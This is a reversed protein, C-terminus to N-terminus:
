RHPAKLPVQWLGQLLGWDYRRQKWGTVMNAEYKTNSQILKASPGSLKSFSMTSHIGPRFHCFVCFNLTTRLHRELPDGEQLHEFVDIGHSMFLPFEKEDRAVAHLGSRDGALLKAKSLKFEFFDQSTREPHSDLNVGEPITTSIARHVRLQVQETIRTPTFNGEHDILAMQRVFALQTGVPFQPLDPNPLV